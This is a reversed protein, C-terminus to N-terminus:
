NRSSFLEVPTLSRRTDIARQKRKAERAVRTLDEQPEVIRSVAVAFDTQETLLRTTLADFQEKTVPNM